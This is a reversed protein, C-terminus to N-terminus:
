VDALAVDAVTGAVSRAPGVTYVATGAANNLMAIVNAANAQGVVLDVKGDGSIDGAALSSGQVTTNYNSGSFATGTNLFVSINNSLNSVALDVKNDGNLDAAILDQPATAGAPLNFNSITAAPFTGTASGRLVTISNSTQNAVALDINGDGDFDASVIRRPGTGTPYSAPAGTVFGLVGTRYSFLGTGTGSKMDDPHTVVVNQAACTGARAPVTCTIATPSLLAPSACPMSGVTVTAGQRFNQGNVTIVTTTNNAGNAPAVSTVVPAPFSVMDPPRVALDPEPPITALDPLPTPIPTPTTPAGECAFALAAAGIGILTSNRLYRFGNMRM